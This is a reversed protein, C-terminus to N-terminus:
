ELYKRYYKQEHRSPWPIHYNGLKILMGITIFGFLLPPLKTIIDGQVQYNYINLFRNKVKNYNFFWISKPSGFLITEVNNGTHFYIDEHIIQALGGGHSYGVIILDKITLLEPLLIDRVSQWQNFFGRHVFWKINQNKYSRPIFNFNIKWDSNSSTPQLYLINSELKYQLDNGITKWKGSYQCNNFYDLLTM